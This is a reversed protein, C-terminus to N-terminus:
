RLGLGGTTQYEVQAQGLMAAEINQLHQAIVLEVYRCDHDGRKAINCETTRANLSPATSKRCFGNESWSSMSRM